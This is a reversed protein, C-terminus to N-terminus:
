YLKAKKYLQKILILGILILAIYLLPYILKVVIDPYPISRLPLITLRMASFWVGYFLFATGKPLRKRFYMWLVPILGLLALGMEFLQTPYRNITTTGKGLLAIVGGLIDQGGDHVPFYVGFFSDTPIGVCCGNLYCGVRAFAFSLGFPLVLADLLPWSDMKAHLTWLLLAAISGLIGGYVSFGALRISYIHLSKGYAEQNVAFNLLRAGILFAATMFALLAIAQSTKLGEKRFLPYASLIGVLAGLVTFLAYSKIEFMYGFLSFAIEPHM